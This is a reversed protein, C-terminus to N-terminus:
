SSDVKEAEKLLEREAVHKLERAEEEVDRTGKIVIKKISELTDELPTLIIKDGEVKIKIMNKVKLERRVKLPLIIRRRDDVRAVVEDM